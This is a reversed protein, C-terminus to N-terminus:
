QSMATLKFTATENRRAANRMLYVQILYDGEQTASFAVDQGETSGIVIAASEGPIDGPNFVNFYASLNDTNLTLRVQQPRDITLVYYSADYGTVHGSLEQLAAASSLPLSECPQESCPNVFAPEDTRAVTSLTTLLLTIFAICPLSGSTKATFQPFDNPSM